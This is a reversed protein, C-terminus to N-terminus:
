RVSTFLVTLYIIIKYLLCFHPSDRVFKFFVMFLSTVFMANLLIKEVAM